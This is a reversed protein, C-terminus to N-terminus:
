NVSEVPGNAQLWAAFGGVLNTPEAVGMEKATRAALASRGGGACYFVFKRGSQFIPKHSGSEPDIQFELLGRPVHVSGPIRGQMELEPPERVDVFVVGPERLLAQAEEATVQGVAQNAEAVMEKFGKAM